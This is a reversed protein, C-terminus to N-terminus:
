ENKNKPQTVSEVSKKMSEMIQVLREKDKNDLREKDLKAAHKKLITDVLTDVNIDKNM